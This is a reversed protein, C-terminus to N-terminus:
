LLVVIGLLRSPSIFSPSSCSLVISGHKRSAIRIL